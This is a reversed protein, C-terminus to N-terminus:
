YVFDVKIVKNWFKNSIEAERISVVEEFDIFREKIENFDVQEWEFSALEYIWEEYEWSLVEIKDETSISIDYNLLEWFKESFFELLEKSTWIKTEWFVFINKNWEKTFSEIYDYELLNVVKNWAITINWAFQNM